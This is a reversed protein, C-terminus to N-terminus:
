FIYTSCSLPFCNVPQRPLGSGFRLYQWFYVHSSAWIWVSLLFYPATLWLLWLRCDLSKIMYRWAPVILDKDYRRSWHKSWMYHYVTYVCDLSSQKGWVTSILLLVGNSLKISEGETVHVCLCGKVGTSSSSSSPVPGADAFCIPFLTNGGEPASHILM